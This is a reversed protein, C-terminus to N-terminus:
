MHTELFVQYVLVHLQEMEKEVNQMLEVHLLDALILLKLDQHQQQPDIVAQSHIELSDKIACVFLYTTESEATPMSEVSAQARIRANETSAPRTPPATLM